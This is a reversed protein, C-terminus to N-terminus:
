DYYYGEEVYHEHENKFYHLVSDVSEGTLLKEVCEYSISWIPFHFREDSGIVYSKEDIKKQLLTMKDNKYDADGELPSLSDQVDVFTQLEQKKLFYALFDKVTDVNESAGNIAMRTDANIVLISGENLLPYPHIEYNLDSNLLAVRSDAWAGTFMFPYEGSAFQVIDDQTKETKLALDSDLYENDILYKAFEFGERLTEVLKQPNKDLEALLEECNDQQYVSALSMGLIITKLSTNNNMCLPTIGNEKLTKLATLFTEKNTPVDINYQKLIDMNCYMGFASITTPVYVVKEREYVQSEIAPHFQINNVLDTLDALYGKETFDLVSDHDVIFLDDGNNSEMRKNLLKQYQNGKVSEYTINVHPNENMYNRLIEEIAQTNIADTKNGFFNLEIMDIENEKKVIYINDTDNVCASISLLSFVSFLIILAKHKM